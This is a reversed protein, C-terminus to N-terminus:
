PRPVVPDAGTVASLADALQPLGIPKTLKLTARAGPSEATAGGPRYGSLSITRVAPDLLHLDDLVEDGSRGPMIQDVIVASYDGSEYLEVCEFPNTTTTTTYGLARTMEGLVELVNPDDDCILVKGATGVAPRALMESREPGDSPHAEHLPLEIRITTGSSSTSEVWIEGQMSMIVRRAITLGLGSQEDHTGSVFPEFVSDIIADPIGPGDDVVRLVLRGEVDDSETTLVIHLLEDGQAQIANLLLNVLVGRLESEDALVIPSSAALGLAIDVPSTTGREVVDVVDRILLHVDTPEDRPDPSHSLALLRSVLEASEAALLRMPRLRERSAPDVDGAWLDISGLIGQLSNNLDHAIGGVLSAVADIRVLERERDAFDEKRLVDEALEAVVGLMEDTVAVADPGSTEAIVWARVRGTPSELPIITFTESGAATSGTRTMRETPRVDSTLDVLTALPSPPQRDHASEVLLRGTAPVEVVLASRARGYVAALFGAASRTYEALDTTALSPKSLESRCIRLLQAPSTAALMRVRADDIGDKPGDYDIDNEGVVVIRTAHEYTQSGHSTFVLTERSSKSRDAVIQLFTSIRRRGIRDIPFGVVLRQPECRIAAVLTILDMTDPNLESLQADDVEFRDLLWRTAPDRRRLSMRIPTAVGLQLNDFVSAAVHYGLRGEAIALERRRRRPIAAKPLDLHRHLLAQNSSDVGVVAVLGAGSTLTVDM